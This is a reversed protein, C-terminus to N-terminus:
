TAVNAAPSDNGASSIRIAAAAGVIYQGYDDINNQVDDPAIRHARSGGFILSRARQGSACGEAAGAANNSSLRAAM